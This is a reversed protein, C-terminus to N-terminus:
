GNWSRIEENITEVARDILGVVESHTRRDNFVSVLSISNDFKNIEDRLRRIIEGEMAHYYQGGLVRWVAGVLCWQCADKSEINTFEGSSDRAPANRCWTDPTAILAKAELM